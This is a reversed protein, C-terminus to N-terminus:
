VHKNRGSLSVPPSPQPSSVSCTPLTSVQGAAGPVPAAWGGAINHDKKGAAWGTMLQEEGLWTLVSGAYWAPTFTNPLGPSM